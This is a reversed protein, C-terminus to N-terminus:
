IRPTTARASSTPRLWLSAQTPQMTQDVVARLEVALTDLDIEDRLRVSFARYRLIAVGVAVPIGVVLGAAPVAVLMGAVVPLLTQMAVAALL